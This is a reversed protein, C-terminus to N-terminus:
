CIGGSSPSLFVGLASFMNAYIAGPPILKNQWNNDSTKWFNQQWNLELPEPTKVRRRKWDKRKNATGM